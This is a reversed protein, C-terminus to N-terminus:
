ATDKMARTFRALEDMRERALGSGIADQAMDVGQRLTACVGAAYIAAGANFAVMDAAAGKGALADHVRALSEQVDNAQLTAISQQALGVDEAQLRYGRIEGDKLEVVDNGGALSLEDLGDDSHVLLVHRSGLRRLVEAMPQMWEVAFVGIVQNPAGAPNTMPGMLNFLTRIGLERRPGVVHKMASHHAPAFMFGVGVDQICRAIEAPELDLRVNAAELLDAAGFRSSMGRNGHKAVRAGSAAAVFAAASSVNFLKKGTGGTGCTDVLYPVDVVVKSSLARMASVAGTVEDVTEGKSRLGMLLAGVQAQTAEGTMLALMVARAEDEALSRREALAALAAAITSAADKDHMPNGGTAPSSM